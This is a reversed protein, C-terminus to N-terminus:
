QGEPYSDPLNQTLVGFKKKVDETELLCFFDIYQSVLIRWTPIIRPIGMGTLLFM